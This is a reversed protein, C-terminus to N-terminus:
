TPSASRRGTARRQADLARGSSRCTTAHGAAQGSGVNDAQRLRLLDDVRDRGSGGCSGASRRTPGPRVTSSCTSASSPRSRRGRDAHRVLAAAAARGRGDPRGGRCPRHLPRGRRDRAQRHRAAAGRPDAAGLHGPLSAAADATAMSHDFLDHGPIKAQPVGHQATSSRCCSRWPVGIDDLIRLGIAVARGRDADTAARRPGAGRLALSRRPRPRADRGADRARHDPRAHGRLPCGAATAPRGRRLASGPRGGRAARRPRSTPAPRGDPRRAIADGPAPRDPPGVGRSRTSPSTAAGCTRSSTTPGPSRTRGATTAYTHDRRFTTVEVGDVEVTGFVGRPSVMPSCRWSATPGRTRPWTSTTSRVIRAACRPRRRGGRIGCSRAAWLRELVDCRTPEPLPPQSRPRRPRRCRVRRPRLRGSLFLYDRWAENRPDTLYPTFLSYVDCRPEHPQRLLRM